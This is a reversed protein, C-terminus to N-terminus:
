DNLITEIINYWNNEGPYGDCSKMKETPERMAKIAALAESLWLDWQHNIELEQQEFNLKSWDPQKHLECYARCIGRAVREIMDDDM